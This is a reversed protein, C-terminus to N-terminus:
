DPDTGAVDIIRVGDEEAPPSLWLPQELTRNGDEYGSRWHEEMSARSFEYDIAMCEFDRRRYILHVISIAHSTGLDRLRQVEADQRARLPLQEFLKVIARRLAHLEQFHDTSFRTRSSFTIHKRREEVEIADGPLAGRADFLDVQFVLTDQKPGEDLVHVLPTNSILGGDWYFEGDICIAPFGPPLAGSAMVHDATIAREASDFYIGNGTSVSVAGLSLRTKGANIRDFDVLEELTERLPSTDYVSVVDPSRQQLWAGPSLRPQFFGPQGALVSAGTSVANFFRRATTDWAPAPWPFACTIREWFAKLRRLRDEPENGAIIAANIAGISVGCVWDPEYGGESLAQYVGAQYAGLAGGGQLVLATQAYASKQRNLKPIDSARM